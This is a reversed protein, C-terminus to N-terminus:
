GTRAGQGRVYYQITRVEVAVLLNGQLNIYLADKFAQLPFLHTQITCRRRLSVKSKEAMRKRYHYFCDTDRQPGSQRPIPKLVSLGPAPFPPSGVHLSRYSAVIAPFNRSPFYM